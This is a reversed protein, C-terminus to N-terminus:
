SVFCSHLYPISVLMPLISLLKIVSFYISILCMSSRHFYQVHKVLSYNHLMQQLIYMPISFMLVFNIHCTVSPQIAIKFCFDCDVLLSFYLIYATMDHIVHVWFKMCDCLKNACKNLLITPTKYLFTLLSCFLMESSYRLFVMMSSM